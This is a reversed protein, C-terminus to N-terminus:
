RVTRLSTDLNTRYGTTHACVVGADIHRAGCRRNVNPHADVFGSLFQARRGRDDLQPNLQALDFGSPASIFALDKHRQRAAFTRGAFMGAQRRWRAAGGDSGSGRGPEPWRLSSRLARERASSRQRPRQDDHRCQGQTETQCPDWAPTLDEVKALCRRASGLQWASGACRWGGFGLLDAGLKRGDTLLQCVFLLFQVDLSVDFLSEELCDEGVM